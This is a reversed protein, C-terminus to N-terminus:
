APVLERGIAEAFVDPIAPSLEYETPLVRIIPHSELIQAVQTFAQLTGAAIGKRFNPVEVSLLELTEPDCIAILNGVFLAMGERPQGLGTYLHDYENVYEWNIGQRAILGNVDDNVELMRVLTETAQNRAAVRFAEFNHEM